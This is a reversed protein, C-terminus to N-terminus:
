GGAARPRPGRGAGPRCLSREGRLRQHGTDELRDKGASPSGRAGSRHGYITSDVGAVTYDVLRAIPKLGRDQAVKGNMLLVAAAGDNIGSANGATVSGNKDFAPRLQALNQLTVDARPQEDTDVMVSGKRSKIEVPVIQGKFVCQKIADVARRHGEVALQDQDERSINWKKAVNEATVGMHVQEFPDTIAAVMADIATANSMRQGWRLGGLWYQARSMSEAGGGIAIDNDGMCISQAASIIAQMGSGCLRNLTLATSEVPLGANVAVVRSLYMDRQETHIVNGMVVQGVDKAEIGAQKIVERVVTAGLEAPPVDKLASGYKGIPTRLASLIVVDSQIM